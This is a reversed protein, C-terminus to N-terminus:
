IILNDKSENIMARAVKYTERMRKGGRTERGRGNGNRINLTYVRLMAARLCADRRVFGPM